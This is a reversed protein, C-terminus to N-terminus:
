PTAGCSDSVYLTGPPERNSPFRIIARLGEPHDKVARDIEDGDFALVIQAHAAPAALADRYIQRDAENITQRLSIGALAVLEPNVSTNMLVAAAPCRVLQARLAPPIDRDFSARARYNLKGEIYVLPRKRILGWANLAVIVMLGAMVCCHLRPKFERATTLIFQAAFGLGLAIAPLMEMGYRTNYWSHPWWVPVFIPVWGYAVSYAYFPVPLWLLLVWDFARRRYVLWGGVTGVFSLALGFHRWVVFADMETVKLYFLVAVWPNRFGPHLPGDGHATRLEIAKASYPGRAFDLWDGFAAANYAFWAIPAVVLFASWIWFSRSRLKGRLLLEIGMATWGILAMIWGDYRTYIAALLAIAIIAQFFNQKKEDNLELATRWEVLGDVIWIMECVFLPETMATTQLYLLNPNLAFFALVVIAPAPSLWRRALRYLGVCALLWALASPITGALGNAWWAHVQVFPLMLLHPLPLWVSGLETIGPFRSDFVRRAIHLHAIADGYNLQVGNHWSWAIAILSLAACCAVVAWIEVRSISRETL